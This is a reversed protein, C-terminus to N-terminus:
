VFCLLAHVHVTRVKSISQAEPELIEPALNLNEAQRLLEVIPSMQENLRRVHVYMCVFSVTSSAMSQQVYLVHVTCVYSCCSVNKNTVCASMRVNYTHAYICTRVHVYMYM